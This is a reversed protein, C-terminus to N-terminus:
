RDVAGGTECSVKRKRGLRNVGKRGRGGLAYSAVGVGSSLLDTQGIRSVTGEGMTSSQLQMERSSAMRYSPDGKFNWAERQRIMVETDFEQLWYM